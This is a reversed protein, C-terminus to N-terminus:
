PRANKPTNPTPPGHRPVLRANASIGWVNWVNEPGFFVIAEVADGSTPMEISNEDDFIVVIGADVFEEVNIVNQGILDCLADRYGHDGYSLFKGNRQVKPWLCLTFKGEDFEIQLYDLIFIASTFRSGIISAVVHELPSSVPELLV